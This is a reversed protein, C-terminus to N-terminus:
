SSVNFHLYIFIINTHCAYQVIAFFMKECFQRLGTVVRAQVVGVRSHTKGPKPAPLDAKTLTFFMYVLLIQAASILRGEDNERTCVGRERCM